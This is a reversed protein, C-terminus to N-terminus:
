PRALTMLMRAAPVYHVEDFYLNHPITLRICVIGFFALALLGHWAIPDQQHRPAPSM